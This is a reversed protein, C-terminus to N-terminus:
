PAKRGVIEARLQKRAHEEVIGGLRPHLHFNGHEASDAGRLLGNGRM